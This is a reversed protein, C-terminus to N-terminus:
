TNCNFLILCQALVGKMEEEREKGKREWVFVVQHYWTFYANSCFHSLCHISIWPSWLSHWIGVPILLTDVPPADRHPAISGLEPLLTDIYLGTCCTLAWPCEYKYPSGFLIVLAPMPSLQPGHSLFCVCGLVPHWLGVLNNVAIMHPFLCCFWCFVPYPTLPSTKVLYAFMDFTTPSLTREM